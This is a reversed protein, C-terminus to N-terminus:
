TMLEAVHKSEPVFYPRRLYDSLHFQDVRGSAMVTLVDKAYSVGVIEDISGAYLPLRSHGCAVLEDIIEDLSMDLTLSAVDTRPVMLERVLTDSFEFVSRLLREGNETFGGELTGQDLMYEIDEATMTPTPPEDDEGFLSLMGRSIGLF